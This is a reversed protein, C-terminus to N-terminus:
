LIMSVTVYTKETCVCCNEPTFIAADGGYIVSALSLPSLATNLSGNLGRTPRESSNFGEYSWGTLARPQLYSSM